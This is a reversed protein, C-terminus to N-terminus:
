RRVKDVLWGVLEGPTTAAVHAGADAVRQAVARDFSPQVQEDLAAAGFVQVGAGVLAFVERELAAADDEFDTIWVLLARHPVDILEAAYRLAKAGETGGGLQVRLLLEVPDEVHSTLDVVQTDYALLHTRFAPLHWLVSAVVAAHVINRAMSGSQDVVVLVQWRAGARRSRAFFLPVELVLRKKEQDWHRLNRRITRNADLNRALRQRSRRYRLPTAGLRHELHALLRRQLEAVVRAVVERAVELAEADLLSKCRLIAEALALSPQAQSLAEARTVVELIGYRELADRELREIAEVPFLLHVRNIWDPTEFAHGPGTGRGQSPALSRQADGKEARDYLWSLADELAEEDEATHAGFSGEDELGEAGAPGLILRWRTERDYRSM